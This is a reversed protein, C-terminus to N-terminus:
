LFSIIEKHLPDINEETVPLAMPIQNHLRTMASFILTASHFINTPPTM